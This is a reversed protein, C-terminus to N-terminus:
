SEEKVAHKKIYNITFLSRATVAGLVIIGGVIAWKGPVEGVILFIWIPNMIPEIVPILTAELASVSKIAKAYIIYPLGLQITGMLLLGVWSLTTPMSQFMFPIGIIATLINGLLVSELPSADKQMRLALAVGAFSIGSIVAWFNGWMNRTDLDGIFFLIMGIFVAMITLWDVKTTREKVFFVGFLAVYIPATYQLLIANAGTTMKNAVVFTIVTTAYSLAGFIQAKSWNIKPKRIVIWIFVASIASRMGAIAIPNWNILKIFVGGLSWLLASIVLYLTAKKKSNHLKEECLDLYIM